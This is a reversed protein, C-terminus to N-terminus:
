LLALSPQRLMLSHQGGLLLSGSLLGALQLLLLLFQLCLLCLQLYSVGAGARCKTMAALACPALWAYWVALVEASVPQM